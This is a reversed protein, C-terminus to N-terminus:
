DIPIRVVKSQYFEWGLQSPSSVIKFSVKPPAIERMDYIVRFVMSTQIYQIYVGLISYTYKHIHKMGGKPNGKPKGRRTGRVLGWCCVARGGISELGIHYTFTESQPSSFAAKGSLTSSVLAPTLMRYICSTGPLLSISPRCALNKQPDDNTTTPTWVVNLLLVCSNQHFPEQRAHGGPGTNGTAFKSCRVRSGAPLALAKSVRRNALDSRFM